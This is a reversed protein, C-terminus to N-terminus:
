FLNSRKNPNLFLFLGLSSAMFIDGVIKRHCCLLESHRRSDCLVDPLKEHQPFLQLPAWPVNVLAPNDLGLFCLVSYIQTSSHGAVTGDMVTYSRTTLLLVGKECTGYGVRGEFQSFIM